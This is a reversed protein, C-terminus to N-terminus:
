KGRNRVVEGIATAALRAAHRAAIGNSDREEVYEVMAFSAIKARRSVARIIKSVHWYLMGGPTPVWVAPMISPDLSDLDFNIHVNSGEPISQIVPDIGNDFIDEGTFFRVGWAKADAIEQPGASSPGRIGVQIINKVFPLESARRMGSSLGWREGHVDDKWDIHGDLQLITVDGLAELGQVVPIPISDEGGLVVPVAGREVITETTRRILERNAPATDLHVDLDGIDAIRDLHGSFVSSDVDWDIRDHANVWKTTARRIATPGALNAKGYAPDHLYPTACPVGMVVVDANVSKVDKCYPVGMFTFFESSKNKNVVNDIKTVAM